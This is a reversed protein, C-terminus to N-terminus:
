EGRAPAVVIVWSVGITNKLVRENPLTSERFTPDLNIRTYQALMGEEPRDRFSEIM